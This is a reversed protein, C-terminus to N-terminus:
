HLKSRPRLLVQVRGYAECSPIYGATVHATLWAASETLSKPPWLIIPGSSVRENTIYAIGGDSKLRFPEAVQLERPTSLELSVRPRSTFLIKEGPIPVIEGDRTLM